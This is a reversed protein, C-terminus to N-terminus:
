HLIGNSGSRTDVYAHQSIFSFFNLITNVIKSNLPTKSNRKVTFIATDASTHVLSLSTTYRIFSFTYFFFFVYFDIRKPVLKIRKSFYDEEFVSITVSGTFLRLNPHIQFVHVM